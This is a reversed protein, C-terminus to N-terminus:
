QVSPLAHIPVQDSANGQECEGSGQCRLDHRGVFWMQGGILKKVELMNDVYLDLQSFFVLIKQSAMGPYVGECQGLCGRFAGELVDLSVDGDIADRDPVHTDALLAKKSLTIEIEM